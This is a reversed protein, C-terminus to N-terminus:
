RGNGVIGMHQSENERQAHTQRNEPLRGLGRHLLRRGGLSRRGLFVFGDLRGNLRLQRFGLDSLVPELDVDLAADRRPFAGSVHKLVFARCSAHRLGGPRFGHHVLYLHAIRGLVLGGVIEVAATTSRLHLATFRPRVM